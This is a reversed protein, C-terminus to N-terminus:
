LRFLRDAKNYKRPIWRIGIYEFDNAINYINYLYEEFRKNVKKQILSQIVTLSDNELYISHQKKKKAYNIGDLISCWESEISDDHNFYTTILSYPKSTYLICATRSIRKGPHFSGDTQILTIKPPEKIILKTLNTFQNFISKTM